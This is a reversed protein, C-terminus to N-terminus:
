LIFRKHEIREKGFNILLGLKKGAAKLYNLM